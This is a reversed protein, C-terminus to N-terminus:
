GGPGDRALTARRAMIISLGKIHERFTAEPDSSTRVAELVESMVAPSVRLEAERMVRLEDGSVTFRVFRQTEPTEDPITESLLSERYTKRARKASASQELLRHGKTAAYYEMWKEAYMGGCKVALEALQWQSFRGSNRGTKKSVMELGAKAIYRAANEASKEDAASTDCTKESWYCGKVIDPVHAAGICAHVANRWAISLTETDEPTMQGYECCLIHVHPHWGHWNGWTVEVCRISAQVGSAWLRAVTGNKKWMILAAYLGNLLPKLADDASHAITLTLMRWTGGAGLMCQQVETM